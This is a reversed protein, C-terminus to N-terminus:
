SHTSKKPPLYNKGTIVSKGTQAELHARARLKGDTARMKLPHCNTVRQSGEAELRRKLQNWYKRTTLLDAQQTLVQVVDVVSFWWTETAEDYSRRIAFGEFETPLIKM